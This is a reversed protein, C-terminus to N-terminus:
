GAEPVVIAWMKVNTADDVNVEILGDANVFLTTPLPGIMYIKNASVSWTIDETRGHSCPVSRITGAKAGAGNQVFILLKGQRDHTFQNDSAGSVAAAETVEAVAAGPADQVAILLDAM